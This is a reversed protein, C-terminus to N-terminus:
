KGVMGWESRPQLEAEDLRRQGRRASSFFIQGALPMVQFFPPPKLGVTSNVRM